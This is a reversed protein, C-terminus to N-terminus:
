SVRQERSGRGGAAHILGVTHQEVLPAAELVQQVVLCSLQVDDSGYSYHKSNKLCTQDLWSSTYADRM